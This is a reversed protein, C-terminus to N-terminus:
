AKLAQAIRGWQAADPELRHVTAFEHLATARKAADLDCAWWLKADCEPCFALPARDSEAQHNSGNMCCEYAICHRIGFMHATEHVAVQLVRRLFWRPEKEPDGMRATSWVGVREHLSAQGFVFNWGHGPWLDENTIALVAVADAPRAPKLVHDLIHRSLLQRNGAHFRRAHAPVIDAELVPLIVAELGFVIRMFRQLVGIVHIEKHTFAGLPQLYLKTREATPRNPRISRYQEFTQGPEQYHALWDNRGPKKKPTFLPRIIEMQQHYPCTPEVLQSGAHIRWGLFACAGCLTGLHIFQRRDFSQRRM